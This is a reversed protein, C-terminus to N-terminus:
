YDEKLLRTFRKRKGINGKKEFNETIVAKGEVPQLSDLSLRMLNVKGNVWKCSTEM